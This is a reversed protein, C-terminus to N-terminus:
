KTLEREMEILTDHFTQVDAIANMVITQLPTM